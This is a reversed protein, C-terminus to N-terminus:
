CKIIIEMEKEFHQQILTTRFYKTCSSHFHLIRVQFMNLDM